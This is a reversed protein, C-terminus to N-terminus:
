TAEFLRIAEDASLRNVGVNVDIDPYHRRVDDAIASLRQAVVVPDRLAEQGLGEFGPFGDAVLTVDPRTIINEYVEFSVSVIKSTDIRGETTLVRDSVGEVYSKASHEEAGMPQAEVRAADIGLVMGVPHFRMTGDRVDTWSTITGYVPAVDTSDTLYVVGESSSHAATRIYGEEDPEANRRFAKPFVQECQWIRAGNYLIDISPRSTEAIPVAAVQEEDRVEPPLEAKDASRRASGADSPQQIADTFQDIPVVRDGRGTLDLGRLGAKFDDNHFAYINLETTESGFRHTSTVPRFDSRGAVARTHNTAATERLSHDISRQAAEPTAGLHDLPALAKALRPVDKVSVAISHEDPGSLRLHRVPGVARDLWEPLPDTEHMRFSIERTLGTPEDPTLRVELNGHAPDDILRQPLHEIGSDRVTVRMHRDGREGAIELAVRVKGDTTETSHAVVDTLARGVEDIKRLPWDAIQEGLWDRARNVASPTETPEPIASGDERVALELQRIPQTAPADPRAIAHRAAHGGTLGGAIGQTIGAVLAGPTLDFHGTIAATALAGGITGTIGAAAAVAPLAARGLLNAAKPAFLTAGATGALVAAAGQVGM